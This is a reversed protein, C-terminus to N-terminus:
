KLTTYFQILEKVVETNNLIRMVVGRGQKAMQMAEETHSLAWITKEALDDANDAILVSEALGAPMGEMGIATTIVLKGAAMAEIIKIKMGSGSLLPVVCIFKDKAFDIAHPVEGHWVIYKNALKHFDAPANRGAIHLMVEPHKDLVKPFVENVYWKLGQQNPLWDLGGLFYISNFNIVSKEIEPFKDKQIGTPSFKIKEPAIYQEYWQADASSIPVVADFQRIMEKEYVYLKRAQAQLFIKKFLNRQYAAFRKWIAGEVNHSRYIVKSMSLERIVPLYASLFLGECQIIDFKEEQLIKRLAQEYNKSTFREIHYPKKKFLNLFAAGLGIGADVWVTEIKIKSTIAVPMDKVEFHHKPTNMCLLHVHWGNELLGTAMQMIAIAEGDHDPYPNKKALLLANM